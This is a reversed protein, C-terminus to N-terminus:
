GAYPFDSDDPSTVHTSSRTAPDPGMASGEELVTVPARERQLLSWVFALDGRTLEGLMYLCLLILGSLGLLRGILWLGSTHWTSAIGFVIVTTLAVRLITAVALRAGCARHVALMTSGAGLWALTTMVAAAGAIGLRPVLVLYGAVSLLALPGTLTLTLGPRGAGTLISCTVSIMALGLAAFALLAVAVGASSYSPGYVLVVIESAAGAVLGAFPVLCLVLRMSRDMMARASRIQGHALLPPLSALLVQSFSAAFFGGPVMTLNQAAGYFGAASAGALAQVALLDLRQFMQLGLSRFFLPLSYSWLLRQPFASRGFLRPRVFYWSAALAVFSSGMAAVLAGGVSLGSGVLLLVLGLRGGWVLGTVLAAKGFAGRGVLAATTVGSLATIPVDLSYLRLYGTLDPANLWRSLPAAFAVLLAAVVIGVAAQIRILGSAATQWDEVEALLKITAQRFLANIAIEAWTVVNFVVSYTGYDSPGLRRTLFMAILFGAALALVQVGLLMLTGRAVRRGSVESTGASTLGSERPAASLNEAAGTV